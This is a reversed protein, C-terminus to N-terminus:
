GNLSVGRQPAEGARPAEEIAKHEEGESLLPLGQLMQLM